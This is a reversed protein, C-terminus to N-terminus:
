RITDKRLAECATCIRVSGSGAYRVVGMLYIYMASVSIVVYRLFWAATFPSCYLERSCLWSRKVMSSRVYANNKILVSFVIQNM